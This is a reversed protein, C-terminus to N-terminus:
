RGDPPAEKFLKRHRVRLQQIYWNLGLDQALAPIAGRPPTPGLARLLPDLETWDWRGGYHDQYKTHRLPNGQYDVTNGM